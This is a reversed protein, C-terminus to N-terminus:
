QVCRVLGQGLDAPGTAGTLFDVYSRNDGGTITATWFRDNPTDPFAQTDVAPALHAPDVLTQLEKLTPLRWGGGELALERCHAEARGRPMPDSSARQWELGTRPDLVVRESLEYGRAAAAAPRHVCRADLVEHIDNMGTISGGFYVTWARLLSGAVPTTSWLPTSAPGPFALTDIHPDSGGGRPLQLSALEILTPLHWDSVGGLALEECRERARELSGPRARREWVLGTVLDRVIEPEVAYRMPNPAGDGPPNPMPWLAWAFDSATLEDANVSEGPACAGLAVSALALLHLRKM